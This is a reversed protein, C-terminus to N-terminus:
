FQDFPGAGAPPKPSPCDNDRKLQKHQEDCRRDDHREEVLKGRQGLSGETFAQKRQRSACTKGGAADLHHIAAFARTMGVREEGPESTKSFDNQEVCQDCLEGLRFHFGDKRMFNAMVFLAVYNFHEANGHRAHKDSESRDCPERTLLPKIAREPELM